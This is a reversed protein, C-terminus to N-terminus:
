KKLNKIYNDINVLIDKDIIYAKAKKLAAIAAENNGTQEYADALMGYIEANPKLKAVTEFRKIAKDFQGSKMSFLGLNLNANLNLSDVKVVALLLQIGQMPNQGADVICSGLGSKADLNNPDKELASQFCTTAKEILTPMLSSDSTNKYAKRFAEAALIYENADDASGSLYYLAAVTFQNNNAYVEALEKIKLEKENGSLDSLEKELQLIMKNTNDAFGKKATAIETDMSIDATASKNEAAGARMGNGTGPPKLDLTLLATMIIIIALLILWQTKKISQM